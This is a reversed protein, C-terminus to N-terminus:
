ANKGPNTNKPFTSWSVRALKGQGKSLQNREILKGHFEFDPSVKVILLKSFNGSRKVQVYENNKEPSITKVEVFDNGLKGDSGQAHPKHLKLGFKVAAFLEGLEGWIQLYRNTLQHYAQATAVLEQFLSELEVDAGEDESSFLAVNSRYIRPRSTKRHKAPRLSSPAYRGFRPPRCFVAACGRCATEAPSKRPANKGLDV